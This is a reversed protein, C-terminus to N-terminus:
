PADGYIADLMAAARVGAQFLRREVTGIHDYVYRYGLDPLFSDRDTKRWVDYVKLRLARSELAWEVPRARRWEDARGAFDQELFEVYETYSLSQRDIIGSDWVSHLRRPEGFWQVMVSNGGRDGGRGVHLPQHVDGAFHLFFALATADLSGEFGDVGHEDMMAAFAARPGEDGALVRELFELAEVVNDPEPTQQSRKLVRLLEDDDEVTVYHWHNVFEWASESRIFDPWTATQALAIPGLYARIAARAPDGLHREAIEAVIRHGNDGWAHLAGTTAVALMAALAVARRRRRHENM